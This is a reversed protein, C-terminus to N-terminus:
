KFKERNKKGSRYTELFIERVRDNVVLFLLSPLTFSQAFHFLIIFTM